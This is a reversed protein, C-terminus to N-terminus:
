RKKEMDEKILSLIYQRKNKIREFYEYLDKDNEKHISFEYRKLVDKRWAYLNDMDRAM